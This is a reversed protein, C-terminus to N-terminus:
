RSPVILNDKMKAPWSHRLVASVSAMYAKLDVGPAAPAELTISRVPDPMSPANQPVSSNQDAAFFAPVFVAMGLAPRFWRRLCALSPM